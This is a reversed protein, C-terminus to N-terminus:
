NNQLSSVLKKITCAAYHADETTKYVFPSVYSCFKGQENCGKLVYAVLDTCENFNYDIELNKMKYLFHLMELEEANEPANNLIDNTSLKVNQNKLQEISKM